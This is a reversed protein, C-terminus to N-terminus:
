HWVGVALGWNFYERALDLASSIRFWNHEPFTGFLDWKLVKFDVGATAHSRGRSPTLDANREFRSPEFYFGARAQMWNPIPELEFALRPSLTSRQGSRQVRRNLFSEIGVGDKVPGTMVLSSVLLLHFRSQRASREYLKKAVYKKARELTTRDLELEIADNARLAAELAELDRGERRGRELEARTNRERERARFRLYRRTPELVENPNIWRENLPRKGLQLATGFSLDWPLSVREPLYLVNEGSGIISNGSNPTAEASVASRFAAGVRIRENNPKWILGTEAGAGTTVFVNQGESFPTQRTTVNLTPLRVGGGIALQGDFFSRAVQLHNIMIQGTLENAPDTADPANRRRLSYQQLDATAAFGWQDVQLNFQANISVYLANGTTIRTRQGSNFFDGARGLSGPFTLGGGGEYDANAFSFPGRVASAAPNQTDGDAGEAMAVFAGALGLVRSSALVVGQSLDIAYSNTGIPESDAGLPQAAAEAALTIGAALGFVWSRGPRM